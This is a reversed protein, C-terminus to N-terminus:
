RSALRNLFTRERPEHYWDPVRILDIGKKELVKGIKALWLEQEKREDLCSDENKDDLMQEVEDDSLMGKGARVLCVRRLNSPVSDSKFAELVENESNFLLYPFSVTHVTSPITQLLLVHPNVPPTYPAPMWTSYDVEEESFGDESSPKESEKQQHEANIVLHSCRFELSTVKTDPSLTLLTKTAREIEDFTITLHNLNRYASLDPTQRRVTVGLSTLSTTSSSAFYSLIEPTVTSGLHLSKLRQSLPRHRDLIGGTLDWEFVRERPKCTLSLHLLEPLQPLDSLLGHIAVNDNFDIIELRTLNTGHAVLSGVVVLGDNALYRVRGRLLLVTSVNPCVKLFREVIKSPVNGEVRGYFDITKVHQRLHPFTELALLQQYSFADLIELPGFLDWDFHPGDMEEEDYDSRDYEHDYNDEDMDFGGPEPYFAFEDESDDEYLYVLDLDPAHRLDNIRVTEWLMPTAMANVEKSVLCLSALTGSTFANEAPDLNSAILSLVSKPLRM